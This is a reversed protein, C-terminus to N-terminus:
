VLFVREVFWFFGAWIVVVSGGVTVWRSATPRVRRIWGLAAAVVVVIALQGLEVGLNFAFLTWGLLHRPLDMEGLVNAFGFGHVLGFVLAIWARRDPSDPRRILNDIGVYCISLAIAPEVLCDPPTVVDLAALSLTLSHAITFATVIRVLPWLGGGTLLLGILFLVHDPGIAIHEIGSLVFRHLVELRGQVHGPTFDAEARSATLIAQHTIAGDEFLRVFTQHAPDYRFLVGAVRLRSPRSGESAEVRLVVAQQDPVPTVDIPRPQVRVGDAELVLRSLLLTMLRAGHSTAFDPAFIEAESSLGLDHAADFSHITIAADFGTPTLNLDVFSFQLPHASLGGGTLVALGLALILARAGRRRGRTRGCGITSVDTRM